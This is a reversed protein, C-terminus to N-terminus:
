GARGKAQLCSSLSQQGRGKGGDGRMKWRMEVAQFKFLCAPKQVQSEWPELPQFSAVAVLKVEDDSTAAAVLHLFCLLSVLNVLRANRCKCQGRGQVSSCPRSILALLPQKGRAAVGAERGLTRGLGGQRM